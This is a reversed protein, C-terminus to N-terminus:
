EPHAEGEMPLEEYRSCWDDAEVRVFGHYGPPPNLHCTGWEEIDFDATERAFVCHECSPVRSTTM